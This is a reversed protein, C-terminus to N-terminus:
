LHILLERAINKGSLEEAQLFGPIANVELLLLEGKHSELVDIGAYELDSKKFVDMVLNKLDHPIKLLNKGSSRKSNGRFDEKSLTKEISALIEGRMMFCRWERKHPIHPQLLFRQDKIAHFTELLSYLSKKGEIFNVGIGQNGRSMKLIYREDKSLKKTQSLFEETMEGRYLLTPISPIKHELFFLAQSDKTRFNKLAKLNNTVKMGSLEHFRSVTLDFDDYNIGTTRHFYSGELKKLQSPLTLCYPNIWMPSCKLKTSELMFRKTSPLNLDQSAIIIHKHM